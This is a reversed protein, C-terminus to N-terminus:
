PAFPEAPFGSDLLLSRFDERDGLWEFASELRLAYGYSGDGAARRLISMAKDAERGADSSPIGSGERGAAGALEAHCAAEYIAPEGVRPPLPEAWEIGRCWDAVAGTVDGSAMRVQGSRLLCEIKLMRYRVMEPFEAIVANRLAMARDCIARAEGLRGRKREIEVMNILINSLEHRTRHTLPAPKEDVIKQFIAAGVQYEDMAEGLRGLVYLAWGVRTHSNALSIPESYRAPNDAIVQEWVTRAKYFYPLSEDTRGLTRLSDGCGDLCSALIRRYEFLAPYEAILIELTGAGARYAALAEVPRGLSQHMAAMNGQTSGLLQRARPSGPKRDVVASVIRNALQLDDLSQAYKGQAAAPGVISNITSVMELYDDLDRDPASNIPRAALERDMIEVAERLRKEAEHERGYAHELWGLSHVIRAKVTYLPQTMGEVPRLDQVLALAEEYSARAADRDGKSEQIFGCSRLNRALDLKVRDDAGPEVALPRRVAVANEFVKLADPFKGIDQLVQGLAEYSRGLAARSESDNRDKLLGELKSYFDAAGQLLRARLGDFQRQKLLLDKSVEGHFLGVAENALEFRQRERRNAEVLELNAANLADNAQRTRENADSLAQNAHWLSSNARAQVVSVAALGALTLLVAVAAATVGTRHRALWRLLTRAWPEKWAGVPEDAMWREVDDALARCTPYRDDAKTAMAKLCVAQLARDISPDLLRPPPFDGRQVKRLVEGVDGEFPAKGTLLCYLTAGLSYVDSRPGLASLDGRAQEPSMYAPTGLAQGPLTEASGSASGPQLPREESPQLAEGEGRPKALGWDVVLTEGHKGVIINGPKLDRHLVGRSHAYDIANCVDLFRRLLKRLELSRAGHSRERAGDAHFRGIAEKLSNGRILRMAYYPRGGDYTGLGYVPVIGPHELGGTIEAELLFRQRSTPDDAHSDLIQKLAVERHLEEDLAVFVAGLGGRAHPRLVRFRRGDTTVAGVAYTTTSDADPETLASGVLTLTVHLGADVVQALRERTSHGVPIAALSREANGHKKLHLAVMAEVGARQEADIDGRDALHDALPRAKDRIWAQFAAVLQVQDILGNQLALLGFLLHLDANTAM